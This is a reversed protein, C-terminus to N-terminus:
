KAAFILRREEISLLPSQLRLPEGINKFLLDGNGLLNEAGKQNLLVANLQRSAQGDLGGHSVGGARVHVAADDALARLRPIGSGLVHDDDGDFGGTTDSSDELRHCKMGNMMDPNHVVVIHGQVDDRGAIHKM